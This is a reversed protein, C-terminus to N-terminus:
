WKKVRMILCKSEKISNIKATIFCEESYHYASNLACMFSICLVLISNAQLVFLSKLLLLCLFYFLPLFYKSNILCQCPFLILFVIDIIGLRVQGFAFMLFVNISFFDISYSPFGLIIFSNDCFQGFNLISVLIFDLEELSQDYTKSIIM